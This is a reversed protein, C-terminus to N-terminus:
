SVTLSSVPNTFTSNPPALLMNSIDIAARSIPKHKAHQQLVLIQEGFLQRFFLNSWLNDFSTDSNVLCNSSFLFSISVLSAALNSSPTPSPPLVQLDGMGLGLDGLSGVRPAGLYVLVLRWVGTEVRLGESGGLVAVQVDM